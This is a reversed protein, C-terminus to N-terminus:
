HISIGKILCWLAWRACKRAFYWKGQFLSCDQARSVNWFTIKALMESPVEELRQVEPAREDKGSNKGPSFALTNDYGDVTSFPVTTNEKIGDVLLRWKASLHLFHAWSMKARTVEELHVLTNRTVVNCWWPQVGKEKKRERFPKLSLSNALNKISCSSHSKKWFEDEGFISPVSLANM